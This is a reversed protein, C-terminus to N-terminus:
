FVHVELMPLGGMNIAFAGSAQAVEFEPRAYTKFRRPFLWPMAAGCLRSFPLRKFVSEREM